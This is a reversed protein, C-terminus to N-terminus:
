AAKKRRRLGALGGLGGLLLLGAAPVPVQSVSMQDIYFHACDPCSAFVWVNSSNGPLPTGISWSALDTANNTSADGLLITGSSLLNHNDDRLVLDTLTVDTSFALVVADFYTSSSSTGGMIGANDDNSPTCQYNTLDSCVGLGGPQNNSIGDLYSYEQVYTGTNAPDTSDYALAEFAATSIGDVTYVFGDWSGGAVSANPVQNPNGYSGEGVGVALAGWDFTAASAMAGACILVASAAATRLM